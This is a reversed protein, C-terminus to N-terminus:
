RRSRGDVGVPRAGEFLAALAPASSQRLSDLVAPWLRVIRELDVPEAGAERM